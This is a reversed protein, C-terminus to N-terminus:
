KALYNQTNVYPTGRKIVAFVRAIIKNRINNLILMKSKGEELKKEYYMKIEPDFKKATIAAINILAKMQKDAYHSVKTKGKVSTGSSYEFPATGIYCAFQRWNKFCTFGKTKILLQLAIQDGVGVVSKALKIKEDLAENAMLIKQIQKEILKKEKELLKIQRENTKQLKRILKEPYNNFSEENLKLTTIFKVLKERQNLLLRIKLLDDNELKYLKAKHQHTFAYEAIDIADAKDNKGRKFGKYRNILLPNEVWFDIQNEALLFRLKLGYNGTHEFCILVDKPLKKILVKIAKTTNEIKLHTLDKPQNANLLVIDLTSKSVDIGVFNSYKKM